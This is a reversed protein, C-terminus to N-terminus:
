PREAPPRPFGREVFIAEVRDAVDPAFDRRASGLLAALFGQAVESNNEAKPMEKWAAAVLHDAGDRGLADRVAWFARGWVELRGYVVTAAPELTAFDSPGALDRPIEAGWGPIAAAEQAFGPRDAFSCVFYDALDSELIYLWPNHLSEDAPRQAQLRPHSYERRVVDPISALSLDIDIREEQADYSSYSGQKAVQNRNVAVKPRPTPRDFGVKGLYRIYDDLNAGIVRALDPDLDSTLDFDYPRGAVPLVPAEGPNAALWAEIRGAREPNAILGADLLFKLNKRADPVGGTQIMALIRDAEAREADNRRNMRGNLFAVWVSAAGTVAAAAVAVTLSPTLDLAL